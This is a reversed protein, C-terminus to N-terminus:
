VAGRNKCGAVNETEQVLWHMKVGFSERISVGKESEEGEWVACGMQTPFLYSGDIQARPEFGSECFLRGQGWILYFKGIIHRRLM